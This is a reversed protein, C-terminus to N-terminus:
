EMVFKCPTMIIPFGSCPVNEVSITQLVVKRHTTGLGIATAAIVGAHIVSIETKKEAITFGRFSLVM